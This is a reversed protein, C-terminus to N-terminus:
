INAESSKEKIMVAIKGNHEIKIIKFGAKEYAKIARINDMDPDVLCAYFSPWVYQDLFKNIILSALGKGIFYPEGIYLDIAALNEPLGRLVYDDREFDYANYYQIYGIAQQDAHIIFANISKKVANDLKYGHVYTLYKEKILDKTWIIERDWWKKVHPENLWNVLLPFDKEELKKFTINM